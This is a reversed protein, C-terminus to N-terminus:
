AAVDKLAAESLELLGQQMQSFIDIAQVFRDNAYFVRDIRCGM